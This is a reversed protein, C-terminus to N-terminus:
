ITLYRGNDRRISERERVVCCAVEGSSWRVVGSVM